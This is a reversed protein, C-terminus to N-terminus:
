VVAFKRRALATGAVGRFRPAASLYDFVDRNLFHEDFWVVSGYWRVM